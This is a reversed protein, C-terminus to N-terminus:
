SAVLPMDKVSKVLIKVKKKSADKSALKMDLLSKLRKLKNPKMSDKAVRDWTTSEGYVTNMISIRKEESLRRWKEQPARKRNWNNKVIKVEIVWIIKVTSVVV